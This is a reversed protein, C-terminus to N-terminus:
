ASAAARGVIEGFDIPTGAGESRLFLLSETRIQFIPQRTSNQTTSANIALWRCQHCNSENGRLEGGAVTCDSGVFSRCSIEATWCGVLTAFGCFLAALVLRAVCFEVWGSAEEERCRGWRATTVPFGSSFMFAPPFARIARSGSGA